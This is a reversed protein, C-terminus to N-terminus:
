WDCHSDMADHGTKSMPLTAFGMDHSFAIYMASSEICIDVRMAGGLSLEHRRALDM